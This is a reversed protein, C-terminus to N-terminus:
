PQRRMRRVALFGLGIFGFCGFFAILELPLPIVIPDEIVIPPPRLENQDANRVFFVDAVGPRPSASDELSTLVPSPPIEDMSLAGAFLSPADKVAGSWQAKGPWGGPSALEGTVRENSLFFVRLLRLGVASPGRQDEPERYPFFPRETTFSMKVSKTGLGAADGGRAIKFATIKWKDKVYPELWSTLEKRFAYGHDELWKALENASDAALVTADLGAVRAEALVAVGTPVATAEVSGRTSLLLGVPEFRIPRTHRVEPKVHEGLRAFVEDPAEGLKPVTPTPVLFGFDKAATQFDARRIFHETKTRADWVILADEYQVQVVENSRPAPACANATGELRLLLGFSL